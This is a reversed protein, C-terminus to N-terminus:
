KTGYPFSRVFIDRLLAANPSKVIASITSQSARSLNETKTRHGNHGVLYIRFIKALGYSPSKMTTQYEYQVTVLIRIVSSSCSSSPCHCHHCSSM